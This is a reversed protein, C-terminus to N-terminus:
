GLVCLVTEERWLQLMGAGGFGSFLSMFNRGIFICTYNSDM